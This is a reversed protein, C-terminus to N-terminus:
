RDPLTAGPRGRPARHQGHCSHLGTRGPARCHGQRLFLSLGRPPTALIERPRPQSVRGPGHERLGPRRGPALHRGSSRGPAPGPHRTGLNRGPGSVAHHQGRSHRCLGLRRGHLGMSRVAAPGGWPTYWEPRCELRDFSALREARDDTVAHIHPGEVGVLFRVPEEELILLCEIPDQIGTTLTRSGNRTLVAVEGDKLAALGITQGQAIAQVDGNELVPQPVARDGNLSYVTERTAILM